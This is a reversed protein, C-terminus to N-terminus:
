IELALDNFFFGAFYVYIYQKLCDEMSFFVRIAFKVRTGGGIAAM